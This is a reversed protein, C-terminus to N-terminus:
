LALVSGHENSIPVPDYSKVLLALKERKKSFLFLDKESKEATIKYVDECM